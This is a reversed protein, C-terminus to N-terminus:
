FMRDAELQEKEIVSQKEQIAFISTQYTRKADNVILSYDSVIQDSSQFRKKMTDLNNRTWNM